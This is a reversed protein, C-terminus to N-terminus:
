EPRTPRFIPGRDIVSQLLGDDLFDPRPDIPRASQGDYGFASRVRPNLFYAGPVLEALVGFSATDKTQLDAVFEAPNRGQAQALIKKLGVALDPRVELIQDLGASAVGAESASPFGSGAPILVDALGALISRESADFNM